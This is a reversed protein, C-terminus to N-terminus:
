SNANDSSHCSNSGQGLFKRMGLVTGFLFFFHSSKGRRGNELLTQTSNPSNRGQITTNIRSAVQDPTQKMLFNKVTASALKRPTDVGLWLPNRATMTVRQTRLLPCVPVGQGVANGSHLCLLSFCGRPCPYSGLATFDNPSSLHQTHIAKTKIIKKNKCKKKAESQFGHWLMLGFRQLSLTLAKVWQVVLSSRM